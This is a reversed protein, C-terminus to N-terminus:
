INYMVKFTMLTIMTYIRQGKENTFNEVSEVFLRTGDTLLVEDEYDYGGANMYYADIEWKWKIRYLVKSHGSKKNEWMFSHAISKDLSCSTYGFLRIMDDANERKGVM